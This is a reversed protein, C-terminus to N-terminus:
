AKAFLVDALREVNRAIDYDREVRRRAAKGLSSRASEDEILQRLGRVTDAVDAPKVLVGDVGDDILEPIGMIRSAVCPLEMAMAEMLVVPVGEAFSPLAFIDSEAYLRTVEAPPQPGVFEVVQQLGTNRVHTELMERDPGGGVVRLRVAHGEAHLAAVADILLVQAKVPALRGVTLIETRSGRVRAPPPAYDSLRIGLPVIAVRSWFSPDSWRLVQSRAFGSITIVRDASAVKQALGFGVVNDFEGPGHITLSWPTESIEAAFMTVTSSFHSHVRDHGSARLWDAVMCAQGLYACHAALRQPSSGGLLIARRTTSLVRVPSRLLWRLYSISGAIVGKAKIYVARTAEEREIEPLLALARDPDALSAVDVEVGLRRLERVERLLFTHNYTPYQSLVYAIRHTM